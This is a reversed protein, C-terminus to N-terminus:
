EKIKNLLDGVTGTADPTDDDEFEVGSVYVPTEGEPATNRSHVVRGQVIVTSGDGLTLAFEHIAGEPFQMETEIALGGLSMELVKVPVNLAVVHGHLRGLIEVRPSRRRDSSM